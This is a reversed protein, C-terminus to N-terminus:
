PFLNLPLKILRNWLAVQLNLDTITELRILLLNQILITYSSIGLILLFGLSFSILLKVEAYPIIVDTLPGTFLPLCLYLVSTLLAASILLAIGKLQGNFTFFLVDLIGNQSDKLGGYIEYAKQFDLNSAEVSTILTNLKASYFLTEDSRQFICIFDDHSCAITSPITTRFNYGELDVERYTINNNDLFNKLPENSVTKFREYNIHTIGKSKFITAVARIVLVLSSEISDEIDFTNALPLIKKSLESTYDQYKM